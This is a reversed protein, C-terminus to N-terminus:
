REVHICGRLAVIAIATSPAGWNCDEGFPMVGADPANIPKQHFVHVYGRDRHLTSWGVGEGTSVDV